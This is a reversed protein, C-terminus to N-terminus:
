IIKKFFKGMSSSINNFSRLKQVLIIECLECLYLVLNVQRKELNNEMNYLLELNFKISINGTTSIFFEFCSIVDCILNFNFLFSVM